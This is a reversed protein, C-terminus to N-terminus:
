VLSGVRLTELGVRLSSVTAEPTSGEDQLVVDDVYDGLM